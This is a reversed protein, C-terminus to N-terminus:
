IKGWALSGALGTTWESSVAANAIAAKIATLQAQTPGKSAKGAGGGVSPQAEEEEVEGQQGAPQQGQRPPQQGQQLAATQEQYDADVEFTKASHQAAAEENPFLKLAEEREKQKVQELGPLPPSFALPTLALLWDHHEVQWCSKM